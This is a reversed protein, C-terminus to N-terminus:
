PADKESYRAFLDDISKQAYVATAALVVAFLLIIKKM